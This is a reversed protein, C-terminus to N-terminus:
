WFYQSLLPECIVVQKTPHRTVNQNEYVVFNLHQLYCLILVYTTEQLLTRNRTIVFFLLNYEKFILREFAYSQAINSLVNSNVFNVLYKRVGIYTYTKLNKWKFFISYTSVYIGNKCGHITDLQLFYINRFMNSYETLLYMQTLGM